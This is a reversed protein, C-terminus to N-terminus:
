KRSQSCLRTAQSGRKTKAEEKSVAGEKLSMTPILFIVVIRNQGDTLLNLLSQKVMM